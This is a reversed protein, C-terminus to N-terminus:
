SLIISKPNYQNAIFAKFDLCHAKKFDIVLSKLMEPSNNEESLHSFIVTKPHNEGMRDLAELSQDNSLHGYPGRIREKLLPPYKRNRYLMEPDHNAELIINTGQNIYSMMRNTIKGTDTAFCVTEGSPTSVLYGVPDVADHMTEFPTIEFCGLKIRRDKEIIRCHISHKINEKLIELTQATSFVPADLKYATYAVGKIHDEHEHTLLIAKIRFIDIGLKEARSSFEKFSLGQDILIMSNDVEIIYANAKSGSALIHIATM